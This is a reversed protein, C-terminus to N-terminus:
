NLEMLSLLGESPIPPIPLDAPPNIPLRRKVIRSVTPKKREAAVLRKREQNHALRPLNLRHVKSIVANRSSGGLEKAIESASFGERWRVKLLEIREETWALTM